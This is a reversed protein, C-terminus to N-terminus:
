PRAQGPWGRTKLDHIGPVLGPMVGYPPAADVVVGSTSRMDGFSITPAQISANLSLKKRSCPRFHGVSYGGAGVFFGPQPLRAKGM